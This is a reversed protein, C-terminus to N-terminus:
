GIIPRRGSTSGSLSRYPRYLVSRSGFYNRSPPSRSQKGTRARFAPLASSRRSTSRPTSSGPNPRRWDRLRSRPCRIPRAGCGHEAGQLLHAQRTKVSGMLAIQIYSLFVYCDRPKCFTCIQVYSVFVYCDRPKCCFLQCDVMIEKYL